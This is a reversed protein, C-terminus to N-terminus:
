EDLIIDLLTFFEDESVIKIGKARAKEVKSSVKSGASLLMTTDSLIAKQPKGGNADILEFIEDRTRHTLKGTIVIKQGLLSGVKKETEEEISLRDDSWHIGLELLKNEIKILREMEYKQKSFGFIGQRVKEAVGDLLIGGSQIDDVFAKLTNYGESIKQAFIKGVGNIQAREVFYEMQVRNLYTNSFTTKEIIEIKEQLMCLVDLNAKDHFFDELEKANQYGIDDVLEYLEAYGNIINDLCGFSNALEKSTSEGVGPIGLSFLLKELKVKETSKEIAAILNSASLDAFGEIHQLQEFKLEFLDAPSKILQLEVLQQVVKDGLGDIDMAKRSVFHIIEQELQAQCSLRGICVLKKGERMSTSNKLRQTIQMSKVDAGCVPCKTPAVVKKADVGKSSVKVIQPIVDGARRIIVTDGIMVGLRKIEDMNHLTANSVTVGGVFVPKLRAVPTIAGTRGVQFEVDLVKTLMEQAPFKHAIAWRPARSVFGLREQMLLNNVKFVIGDIEYPLTNRKEAMSNYYEMCGSVGKVVRMEANIRLGWGNLKQLSTEHTDALAGGEVVGVSYCCMELKRSATIKPDLQRLSGAAANRPNVFPKNGLREAQTNLADFASKPMYIEGRVELRSPFDDGILKLPISNITRVNETINEGTQGDGRTAGQVLIGNEYLLSVAIGDLKPECAYVVAESESGKEDPNLRDVVRRNFDSMDEENFANDLSLMPMEHSVQTFGALPEGGVRQTPSEPTILSPHEKELTNLSLLLRDYEADPISPDDLVYYRYNHKNLKNRLAEVKLTVEESVSM